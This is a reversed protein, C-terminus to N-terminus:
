SSVFKEISTMVSPCPALFSNREEEGVSNGAVGASAAIFPECELFLSWAQQQTEADLFLRTQM